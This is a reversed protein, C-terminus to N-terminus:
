EFLRRQPVIIVDGDKLTTNGATSAGALIQDYNIGYVKEVGSVIRRLQIRKTAAFKSFGGMQAFLQLVTTGPEVDVRGPNAAEGNVYIAYLVPVVPTNNVPATFISEISVFVNPAAAFSPTLKKILDAQIEEVSRGAAAISGALPITIRGDPPILSSRNLTADELVEIRLVDGAKVLYANQAFAPAALLVPLLLLGALLTFIRRM